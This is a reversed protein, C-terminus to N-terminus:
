SCGNVLLRRLVRVSSAPYSAVAETHVLQMSTSAPRQHLESTQKPRILDTSPPSTATSTQQVAM